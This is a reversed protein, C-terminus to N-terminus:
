AKDETTHKLMPGFIREAVGRWVPGLPNADHFCLHNYQDGREQEEWKDYAKKVPDSSEKARPALTRRAYEFSAEPFFPLPRRLGENYIALLDALLAGAEPAPTIRMTVDTAFLLSEYRSEARSLANLALHAIWAELRNKPTLKWGTVRLLGTTHVGDLSGLLEWDGIPLLVPIPPRAAGPKTEAVRGMLESIKRDVEYLAADGAYGAPLVGTARVALLHAERDAGSRCVETLNQQVQWRELGALSMPECDELLADPDSLRAALRRTVFYKAPHRFFSVLDALDIRRWEPGPASLPASLFPAAFQRPAAAARSARCNELSYSFLPGAPSFYRPSFAQLKHKVVLQERMSKATEATYNAELYDLLESVVVSPPSESNDKPSLGSYSLYLADRASLLSELFVQRDEERRSRGVGGAHALLDLAGNADRRPFADDNLGLICIVRFPISRMPKMSCFTVHGVLFGRSSNTDAFAEAVQAHVVEFPVAEPHQRGLAGLSEFVTRLRRIENASEESDDLFTLALQAFTREWADLPRPAGLKPILDFLKEAFDAFKGLIDANGGEIDNVPASDHFLDAGQPAMAYGLLLRELGSRWSNQGFAPLDFETRHEADIGWRIATEAIWRQVTELDAEALGFRRRVPATELLALVEAAGFRSGHMALLQLLAQASANEASASRDAIAFPIRHAEDDPADFVAEIFPAFPEVDPMMVLIDKPTLSPLTQFLDLLHDHLVELERMPGHCCHVQLSRDHASSAAKEEATRDTLQFIDAQLATLLTTAAPEDFLEDDAHPTLTQIARAFDRGPKGLSALLPNGTDLHFEEATQGPKAHRRLFRQQERPAQTDGWYQDTPEFLFLHLELCHGLLNLLHIHFPPLASVGFLSLRPPLGPLELNGGKIRAELRQLFAPPHSAETAHALSRWLEAPWDGRADAEWELVTEPRYALYRDFLGGIQRSLEYRKLASAEGEGIYSRLPAFAPRDLVEPLTFYINWPLAERDFPTREPAEPFAAHFVRRALTDPFPFDCNMAVGLRAALSLGLWRRMGLSQVIVTEPQFPDPLPASVLDGLRAALAELRNSRYVHLGPM